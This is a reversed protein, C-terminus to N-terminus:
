FSFPLGARPIRVLKQVEPRLEFLERGLYSVETLFLQEAADLEDLQQQLRGLDEEAVVRLARLSDRGLQASPEPFAHLVRLTRVDMKSTEWGVKTLPFDQVLAPDVPQNKVFVAQAILRNLDNTYSRMLTFGEQTLSRRRAFEDSFDQSKEMRAVLFYYRVLSWRAEDWERKSFKETLVRDTEVVGGVVPLPTNAAMDRLQLRLSPSLLQSVAVRTKFDDASIRVQDGRVPLWLSAAVFVGALVKRQRHLKLSM